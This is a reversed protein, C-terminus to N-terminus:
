LFGVPFKPETELPPLFPLSAVESVVPGHCGLFSFSWLFAVPQCERVQCLRLHAFFLFSSVSRHSWPEQTRHRHHSAPGQLCTAPGLSRHLQPVPLPSSLWIQGLVARPSYSTSTATCSPSLSSLITRLNPRWWCHGSDGSPPPPPLPLM